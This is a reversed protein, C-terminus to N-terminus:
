KGRATLIRDIQAAHTEMTADTWIVYDSQAIKKEVPWQSALRQQTQEDNWGRQQLREHQTAASCALCVIADFASQADTEFLLPIIVVGTARGQERWIKVEAQWLERIRPHLIAELQRLAAPDAFVKRALEDRRLQGDASLLNPGFTQKIEALAPRGPEVIQRALDDTDIVSVGRETLLRAATSKGMGIGGTLGLLKM